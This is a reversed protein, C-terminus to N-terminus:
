RLYRMRKANKIESIRFVSVRFYPIESVRFSPFVSDGFCPIESVRFRLFM